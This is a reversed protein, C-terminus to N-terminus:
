LTLADIGGGCGNCVISAIEVARIADHGLELVACAAEKGSGIGYYRSEIVIPRPGRQYVHIEATPTIVLMTCHDDSKQSDPLDAAVAGADFWALMERSVASNGASGVLHGRLRRIKTTRAFKTWEDGSQRDAALTKGDWVIVTM